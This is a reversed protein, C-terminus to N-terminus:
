RVINAGHNPNEKIRLPFIPATPSSPVPDSPSVAARSRPFIHPFPALGRVPLRFPLCLDPPARDVVSLRVFPSRCKEPFGSLLPVPLGSRVLRLFTFVGGSFGVRFPICDSRLLWRAFPFRYKSIFRRLPCAGECGDSPCLALLRLASVPMPQFRIGLFIPALPSLCSPSDPVVGHPCRFLGCAACRPGPGAETSPHGGSQRAARSHATEGASTRGGRLVAADGALSARRASRM